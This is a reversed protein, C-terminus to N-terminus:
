IGAEPRHAPHQNAQKWFCHEDGRMLMLHAIVEDTPCLVGAWTDNYYGIPHLCLAALIHASGTSTSIALTPRLRRFMYMVKSKKSSELFSGTMAYKHMAHPKILTGLKMIAAIEAEMTWADAVGLTRMQMVAHRVRRNITFRIKGDVRYIIYEWGRLSSWWSNIIEVPAVDDEKCQRLAEYAPAFRYSPHITLEEDDIPIPMGAYENVHEAMQHIVARGQEFTLEPLEAM